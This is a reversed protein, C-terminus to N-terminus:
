FFQGMSFEIQYQQDQDPISDLAYGYELRMPGMPSYWRVGAGISKRLEFEDHDGGGWADGMDFFMVWMIGYEESIPLMYEVNAFLENNGGIYDNSTTDRSAIKHWEYGRISEMGGLYFREFVPTEEDTNQWITGAQAHLHLIHGWEEIIPFYWSTDAIVRMFHDDGMLIGGGNTFSISNISGESPNLRRNTSDRLAAFSISSAWNDGERDRIVAAADDDVELISYRDLTYAAYVSSYEGIPYSIRVKGGLTRKTFDAYEDDQYYLDFGGTLLTDYIAPNTFSLNYLTNEGSLTAKLALIYGMGFMNRESAQGSVFPGVGSSYGVGGAIMGTSKEKVTVRLDLEEPDETPVPEIEVSDFLDIKVLRENSRQLATGNFLEGDSLAMERRIVNDRTRANGVIEVRRIYVKQAKTMFYGIEVTNADEDKNMRVDCEAFAYGYDNYYNVLTDSDSRIISRDFYEGDEALEDAEILENLQDQPVLLDGLFAVGTVTYPDGEVVKFTVRIGDDLYEIEPQGVQVDIFGHDTYYAQIAAIDRELIDQKIVGSGTFWSIISREALALEDKVDDPDLQEAGEIVIETVYLKNGEDVVINLRAQGGEGQELEHSIEANYYGEKRYLDRIKELDSALVGPNMVSGTRTSMVEIIEDDDLDSNGLVSIAMIRPKEVVSVILRKGEPLDDVSISVDDFYGLDFIRQIEEDLVRPDYLDGRQVSMRMLVVDPDLIEAGQIQIDAIVDRVLISNTINQALEVVAPNIQGQENVVFLPKPPVVGFAEVLRVDLSMTDGSQSLSGYVAYQAGALLALDKATALDLYRINRRQILEATENQDVVKFGQQKLENALLGPLDSELYDFRSEANIEFPLVLVTIEGASDQAMTSPAVATLILAAALLLLFNRKSRM